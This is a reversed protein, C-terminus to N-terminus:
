REDQAIWKTEQPPHWQALRDLLDEPTQGVQLIARHAPKLFGEAVVHDLFTGLTSYFGNVNLVGCPKAHNGLQTWTWVEFLEELTGIGGPLAIFADSMDAMLAKREHMSGVIRLDELGNHAVERAVLAQPIVGTVQGGGALVANAVAGMLGVSAGGYVLGIGRRAMLLGLQEAAHLYAPGRGVSSGCFVCIRRM